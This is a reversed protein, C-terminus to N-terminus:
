SEELRSLSTTATDFLVPPLRRAWRARGAYVGCLRFLTTTEYFLVRRPLDDRADPVQELYTELFLPRAEECVRASAPFQLGRLTLHALFNGVDLARDGERADDLDLLATTGDM